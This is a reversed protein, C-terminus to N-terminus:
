PRSLGALDLAGFLKNVSPLGGQTNNRYVLSLEAPRCESNGMQCFSFCRQWSAIKGGTTHHGERQPLM